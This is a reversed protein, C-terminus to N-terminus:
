VGFGKRWGATWSAEMGAPFDEYRVKIRYMDLILSKHAKRMAGLPVLTEASMKRAAKDGERKIDLEDM